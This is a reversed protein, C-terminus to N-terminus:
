VVEMKAPLPADIFLPLDISGFAVTDWPKLGLFCDLPMNIHENIANKTLMSSEGVSYRDRLWTYSRYERLYKGHVTDLAIRHGYYRPVFGLGIDKGTTEFDRLLDCTRIMVRNDNAYEPIVQDSAKIDYLNPNLANYHVLPVISVYNILYAHETTNYSYSDSVSADAVLTRQGIKTADTQISATVQSGNIMSESGGLYTSVLIAFDSPKVGFRAEIQGVYTDPNYYDRKLKKELMNARRMTQLDHMYTMENSNQTVDGFLMFNISDPLYSNFDNPLNVPEDVVQTQQPINNSDSFTKIQYSYMPTSSAPAYVHRYVDDPQVMTFADRTWNRKRPILLQIFTPNRTLSVSGFDDPNLCKTEPDLHWNRFFDFWVAYNARLSMESMPTIDLIDTFTFEEDEFDSILLIDQISLNLLNIYNSRLNTTWTTNSGLIFIRAKKDANNLLERYEGYYNLIPYGLMDLTSGEGAITSFVDYLFDGLYYDPYTSFANIKEAALDALREKENYFYDQNNGIASSKVNTPNDFLYKYNSAIYKLAFMFLWSPSFNTQSGPTTTAFATVVDTLITKLNYNSLSRFSGVAFNSFYSDLLSQLKFSPLSSETHGVQSSEIFQKFRNHIRRSSVLFSHTDLRMRGAAPTAFKEMQLSPKVSGKIISGPIIKTSRIPYLVGFPLTTMVNQTLDFSSRNPSTVELTKVDVNSRTFNTTM